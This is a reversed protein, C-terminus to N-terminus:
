EYFQLKNVDVIIPQLPHYTKNITLDEWRTDLVSLHQGQHSSMAAFSRNNIVKLLGAFKYPESGRPISYDESNNAPVMLARIIIEAHYMNVNAIRKRLIELFSAVASSTTDCSGLTNHQGRKTTTGSNLYTKVEKFFSATNDSKVPILFIPTQKKWTGQPIKIEITSKLVEWGHVRIYDLMEYSLHVGAGGVSLTLEDGADLDIGGPSIHRIGILPLSTIKTAQLEDISINKLQTLYNCRDKPITLVLTNKLAHPTFYLKDDQNDMYTVWRSENADIQLQRRVSSFDLHKVSMLSQTLNAITPNSLFYGVNIHPECLNSVWGLCRPCINQSDALNCGTVSRVKIVTGVIDDISGWSMKESGDPLQYFKGALIQKDDPGVLYNIPRAGTCSYYRRPDMLPGFNVASVV